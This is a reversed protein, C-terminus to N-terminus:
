FILVMLWKTRPRAAPHVKAIVRLSNTMQALRNPTYRELGLVIKGRWFYERQNLFCTILLSCPNLSPPWPQLRLWVLANSALTQRLRWINGQLSGKTFFHLVIGLYSLMKSVQTATAVASTKRLQSSAMVFQYGSLLDRVAVWTWSSSHGCSMGMGELVFSVWCKPM